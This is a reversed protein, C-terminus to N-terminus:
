PVAPIGLFRCGRGWGDALHTLNIGRAGSFDQICTGHPVPDFGPDSYMIVTGLAILPFPHREDPSVAGYRLLDFFTAPLHRDTAMMKTVDETLLERDFHFVRPRLFVRRRHADPFNKQTLYEHVYRYKGAKLIEPISSELRVIHIQTM